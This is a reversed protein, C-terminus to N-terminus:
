AIEEVGPLNPLRAAVYAYRDNVKVRYMPTDGGAEESHVLGICSCWDDPRATVGPRIQVEVAGPVKGTGDCKPCDPDVLAALIDASKYDGPATFKVSM